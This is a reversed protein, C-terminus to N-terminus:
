RYVCFNIDIFYMITSGLIFFLAHKFINISLCLSAIQHQGRKIYGSNKYHMYLTPLGAMAPSSAQEQHHSKRFHHGLKPLTGFLALHLQEEIYLTATNGFLATYIQVKGIICQM